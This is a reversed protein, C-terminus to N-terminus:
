HIPARDLAAVPQHLAGIRVQVTTVSGRPRPPFSTVHSARIVDDTTEDRIDAPDPSRFLDPQPTGDARRM